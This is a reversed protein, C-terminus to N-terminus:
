LSGFGDAVDSRRCLWRKDLEVAWGPESPMDVLVTVMLYRLLVVGEAESSRGDPKMPLADDSMVARGGCLVARELESSSGSQVIRM